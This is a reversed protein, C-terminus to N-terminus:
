LLKPLTEVLLLFSRKWSNFPLSLIRQHLTPPAALHCSVSSLLAYLCPYTSSLSLECSGLPIPHRSSYLKYCNCTKFRGFRPRNSFGHPFFWRSDQSQSESCPLFLLHFLFYGFLHLLLVLQPYLLRSMFFWQCATKPTLQHISMPNPALSLYPLLMLQVM